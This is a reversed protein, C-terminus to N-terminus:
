LGGISNSMANSDVVGPVVEYGAPKPQRSSRATEKVRRSEDLEDLAHAGEVLANYQGKGDSFGRSKGVLEHLSHTNHAPNLDHVKPRGPPWRRRSHPSTSAGVLEAATLPAPPNAMPNQSYADPPWVVCKLAAPQLADM